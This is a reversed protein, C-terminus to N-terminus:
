AVRRGSRLVVFLATTACLLLLLANMHHAIALPTYVVSLVTSIGLLIQVCVLVFSLVIMRRLNPPLEPCTWAYASLCSAFVALVYALMRHHFQVTAQNSFWSQVRDGAYETPVFSGNMLPWDNFVMGADNGAVLAGSLITVFTLLWLLVLVLRWDKPARTERSVNHNRRTSLLVFYWLGSLILLSVGLHVMLRFASVDLNQSLGSKVMWWGILGQVGGFLLLSLLPAKWTKPLSGRWWLVVLPVAYVIGVMRGWLRHVYEWWFIKKFGSIDMGFNQFRYEPIKQYLAFVRQWETESLPPLFGYIPRWEVMSLGSDTLRTIAGILIMSLVLLFCTALWIQVSRVVVM